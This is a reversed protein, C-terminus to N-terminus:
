ELQNPKIAIEFKLPGPSSSVRQGRKVVEVFRKGSRSRCSYGFTFEDGQATFWPTPHIETRSGPALAFIWYIENRNYSISVYDLYEDTANSLIVQDFYSISSQIKGVRLVDESIWEIPLLSRKFGFELEDEQKWHWSDVLRNGTFFEFQAEDLRQSPGHPKVNVKVRHSGNPSTKDIFEQSKVRACSVAISISIVTICLLKSILFRRTDEDNTTPFVLSRM